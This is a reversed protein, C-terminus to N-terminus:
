ALMQNLPLGIAGLSRPDMSLENTNVSTSSARDYRVSVLSCTPYARGKNPGVYQVVDQFM